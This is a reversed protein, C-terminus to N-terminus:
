VNYFNIDANLPDSIHLFEMKVGFFYIKVVSKQLFDQMHLVHFLKFIM